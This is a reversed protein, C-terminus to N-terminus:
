HDRLVLVAQLDQVEERLEQMYALLVMVVEQEGIVVMVEQDELPHQLLAALAELVVVSVVELHDQAQLIVQVGEQVLQVVQDAAEAAVVV